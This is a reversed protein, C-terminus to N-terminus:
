PVSAASPPAHGHGGAPEAKGDFARARDGGGGSELPRGEHPGSEAGPPPEQEVLVVMHRALGLLQSPVDDLARAVLEEFEARSIALM